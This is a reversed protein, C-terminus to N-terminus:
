WGDAATLRELAALLAARERRPLRQLMAGATSCRWEMVVTGVKIGHRSFRVHVTRRDNGGDREVLKKRALRDVIRSATSLPVRMATALDSMRLSQAWGIIRLAQLERTSVDPADPRGEPGLHDAIVDIARIFRVIQTPRGGM